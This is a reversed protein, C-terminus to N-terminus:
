EYNLAVIPDLKSAKMAPYWGFFIGVFMSFGLSLIISFYNLSFNWSNASTIIKSIFIGFGIGLVGGILTLVLAEILFQGRIVSPSAGIAKRIGIEKTRENVSVLMINMIGIGGVLLSLAAIAALFTALSDMVSTAMEAISSASIVRYYDSGIAEDFYTEMEDSTAITQSEDAVKMVYMDVSTNKNFKQMYTNYPIFITSNYSVSFNDDKEELVGVVTYTKSTNNVLKVEQGVANGDPFLDEAIESGLVIVQKGIMNDLLSFYTGATYNLGLNDSFSSPTGYITASTTELKNRVTTSSRNIAMVSKLSPFRNKIDNAYEETFTKNERATGMPMMTIIDPGSQSISTSINDQVSTGVNLIAVVSAVGIVIGLLSLLTRLKSHFLSTFSLKLNEIHM